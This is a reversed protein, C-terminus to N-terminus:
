KECCLRSSLISPSMLNVHDMGMKFSKILCFHVDDCFLLFMSVMGIDGADGWMEKEDDNELFSPKKQHLVVGLTTCVSENLAFLIFDCM